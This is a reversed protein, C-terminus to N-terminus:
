RGRLPRRAGRQLHAQWRRTEPDARRGCEVCILEPSAVFLIMSRGTSTPFHGFPTPHWFETRTWSFGRNAPLVSIKAGWLELLDGLLAEVREDLGHRAVNARALAVAPESDDTAWIGSAPARLALAVALAGSGTGVDAVSVSRSGIWEAAWQVLAETTAVPTM